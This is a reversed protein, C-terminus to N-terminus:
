CLFFCQLRRTRFASRVFTFYFISWFEFSLISFFFEHILLDEECLVACYADKTYIQGNRFPAPPSRITLRSFGPISPGGYTERPEFGQRAFNMHSSIHVLIACWIDFVHHFTCWYLADYTSYMIRAVRLNHMHNQQFSEFLFVYNKNNEEHLITNTSNCFLCFIDTSDCRSKSKM